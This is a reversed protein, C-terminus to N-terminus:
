RRALRVTQIGGGRKQQFGAVRMMASVAPFPDVYQSSYVPDYEKESEVGEAKLRNRILGRQPARDKATEFLSKALHDSALLANANKLTQNTTTAAGDNTSPIAFMDNLYIYGYELAEQKTEPEADEWIGVEGIISDAESVSAYYYESIAM